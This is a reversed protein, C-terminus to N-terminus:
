HRLSPACHGTTIFCCWRQRPSLGTQAGRGPDLLVAPDIGKCHSREGLSAGTGSVVRVAGAWPSALVTRSCSRRPAPAGLQVGCWLCLFRGGASGVARVPGAAVTADQGSQSSVLSVAAGHGCLLVPCLRYSPRPCGLKRGCLSCPPVKEGAQHLATGRDPLLCCTACPRQGPQPQSGPPAQSIGCAATGTALPSQFPGLGLYAM